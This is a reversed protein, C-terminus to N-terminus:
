EAAIPEPFFDGPTIAIGQERAVELIRRQQRSPILKSKKWAAVTSQRVGIADALRQQTQFKTIITTVPNCM